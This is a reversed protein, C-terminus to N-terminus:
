ASVNPSDVLGLVWSEAMESIQAGLQDLYLRQM